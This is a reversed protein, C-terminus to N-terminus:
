QFLKTRTKLDIRTYGLVICLKEIPPVHLTQRHTFRNARMHAFLFPLGKRSLLSWMKTEKRIEWSDNMFPLFCAAKFAAALLQAKFFYCHRRCCPNCFVSLCVSLCVTHGLWIREKKKGLKSCSHFGHQMHCSKMVFFASTDVKM